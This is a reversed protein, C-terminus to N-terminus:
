ELTRALTMIRHAAEESGEFAGRDDRTGSCALGRAPWKEACHARYGAMFAQKRLGGRLEPSKAATRV